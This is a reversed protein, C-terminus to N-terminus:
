CTKDGLRRIACTYIEEIGFTPVVKIEVASDLGVITPFDIDTDIQCTTGPERLQTTCQSLLSNDQRIRNVYIAFDTVEEHTFVYTGANKIVFSIKGSNNWVTEIYIRASRQKDFTRKAEDLEKIQDHEIPNENWGTNLWNYTSYGIFLLFFMLALAIIWIMENIDNKNQAKPKQRDRKKINNQVTM